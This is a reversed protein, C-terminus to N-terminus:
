APIRGDERAKRYESPSMNEVEQVTLQHRNSSGNTSTDPETGGGSHGNAKFAVALESDQKKEAVLDSFSMPALDAGTVRPTGDRDVIEVVVKGSDDTIACVENKLVPMLLKPSGGDEIIATQLKNDILLEKLQDLRSDALAQIPAVAKELESKASSKIKDMELQLKAVVESEDGKSERLTTLEELAGAIAKPDMDLANFAKLASEAQDARDKQKGLTNKLGAVNEFAFGEEEEVTLVFREEGEPQTYHDRLPEPIQTEDTYFARLAM